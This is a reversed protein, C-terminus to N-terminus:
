PFNSPLTTYGILIDKHYIEVMAQEYAKTLGTMKFADGASVPHGDYSIEIYWLGLDFGDSENEDYVWPDPLLSSLPVLIAGSTDLISIQIDTWLPETDKPTIKNINLVVHWDYSGNIIYLQVHPSSLQLAFDETLNFRDPLAEDGIM